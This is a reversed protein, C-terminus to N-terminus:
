IALKWGGGGWLWGNGLLLKVKLTTVFNKDVALLHCVTTTHDISSKGKIHLVPFDSRHDFCERKM